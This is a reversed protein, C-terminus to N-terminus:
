QILKQIKNILNELWFLKRYSWSRKYTERQQRMVEAKEHRGVVNMGCHDGLATLKSYLCNSNCQTSDKDLIGPVFHYAQAGTNAINMPAIIMSLMQLVEFSATSLSFPFVNENRRMPHSNPLASIYTPDDFYGDRDTSVLGPDYQKLCELCKRGPSAIHAKWDARKLNGTKTTEVQIGGDVVPILHAYAILNLISRPWPRDVCSFLIDCDLATRFGDEETIGYEIKEANFNEATAGYSIGRALVEVKARQMKADLPTAHLLRDMNVTEVSDFDILVLNQVGMRALTEAVISGVSGAGVIGIKLRAIKAQTEMGWSSITRDLEKRYRPPPIIEDAFTVELKEGIVRVNECWYKNYDRPGVKNWFRASWSHDTALTLGVLPLGTSGKVPPAIRLEAKIDDISMGQWGPGVHSHMLALGAKELRAEKVAREFYSPHFSVNGHVRRENEFPIVIKKILATIRNKGESPHWLAFCLDEQRDSRILHDAARQDVETPIAVSYRM